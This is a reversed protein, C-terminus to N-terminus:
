IQAMKAVSTDWLPTTEALTLAEEPTEAVSWLSRHLSRMFRNEIARDFMELLPSFFGCTNLIVIPKDYLGLQKWTIIELLEELTGCGGPLAITADGLSVIKEKRSHMCPTEILETLNDRCWGNRVMFAPIVGTVAGGHELCADSLAGMLGVKGAGYVLRINRRAMAAGLGRAADFFPQPVQSSSAAYVAISRIRTM